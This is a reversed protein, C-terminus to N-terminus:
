TTPNTALAVSSIGAARVLDMVKVINKYSTGEDGAIAVDVKKADHVLGQLHTTLEEPSVEKADLYLQDTKTVGISVKVTQQLQEATSSQPLDLKIGAGQIMKLTALMFFVLLFMMIDIMPIIEIRAKEEGGLYHSRHNRM